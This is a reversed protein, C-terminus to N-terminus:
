KVATRVVCHPKTPFCSLHRSTPCHDRGQESMSLKPTEGVSTKRLKYDPARSCSLNQLSSSYVANRRERVSPNKTKRQQRYGQRFKYTRLPCLSRLSFATVRRPLARSCGYDSIPINEIDKVANKHRNKNERLSTKNKRMQNEFLQKAENNHTTKPSCANGIPPRIPAVKQKNHQTFSKAYTQGQLPAPYLHTTCLM